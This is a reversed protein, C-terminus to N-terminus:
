KSKAECKTESLNKCLEGYREYAQKKRWELDEQQIKEVLGNLKNIWECEHFVRPRSNFSNYELVKRFGFLGYKIAMYYSNEGRIRMTGRFDIHVGNHKLNCKIAYYENSTSHLKKSEFIAKAIADTIPFINKKFVEEREKVFKEMDEITETM